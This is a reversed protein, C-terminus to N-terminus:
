AEGALAAWRNVIEGQAAGESEGSGPAVTRYGGCQSRDLCNQRDFAAALLGTGPCGPETAYYELARNFVESSAVNM